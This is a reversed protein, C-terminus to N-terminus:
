GHRYKGLGPAPILYRWSFSPLLRDYPGFLGVVVLAYGLLFHFRISAVTLRWDRFNGTVSDESPLGENLRVTLHFSRHLARLWRMALQKRTRALSRALDPYGLEDRLWRYDAADFVREILRLNREDLFTELDGEEVIEETPGDLLFQHVSLAIILIIFVGLIASALVATM